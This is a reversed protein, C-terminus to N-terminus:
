RVLVFTEKYSSNGAKDYARIRLRQIGLDTNAPILFSNTKTKYINGGLYIKYETVKNNDTALFTLNTKGRTVLTQNKPFSTIEPKKTDVKIKAKSTALLIGDSNYQKIKLETDKKLNFLKSWAGTVDVNITKWLKNGKYVEITGNALATDTQKLKFKNKSVRLTDKFKNSTRQIKIKIKKLTSTTTISDISFTLQSQSENTAQDQCKIHYTYSTGLNLNSILTSHNTSSTSDFLTM